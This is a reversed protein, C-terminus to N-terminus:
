GKNLTMEKKPAKFVIVWSRGDVSQIPLDHAEGLPVQNMRRYYTSTSCGLFQMCKNHSYFRKVPEDGESCCWLEVVPEKEKYQFDYRSYKGTYKFVSGSVQPLPKHTYHNPSHLSTRITFATMGTLATAETITAVEVVTNTVKDTILIDGRKEFSRKM